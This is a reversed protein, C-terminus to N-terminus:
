ISTLALWGFECAPDISLVWSPGHYGEFFFFSFSPGRNKTPAMAEAWDPM